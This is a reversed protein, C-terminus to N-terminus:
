ADPQRRPRGSRAEKEYAAYGTIELGLKMMRLTSRARGQAERCWAVPMEAGEHHRPKRKERKKRFSRWRKRCRKRFSEKRERRAGIRRRVTTCDWAANKLM